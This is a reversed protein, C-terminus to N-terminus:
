IMLSWDPKQSQELKVNKKKCNGKRFNFESEEEYRM